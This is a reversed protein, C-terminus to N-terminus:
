NCSRYYEPFSIEDINYPMIGETAAQAYATAENYDDAAFYKTIMRNDIFYTIRYYKKM